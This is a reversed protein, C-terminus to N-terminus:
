RVWGSLAAKATFSSSVTNNDMRSLVRFVMGEDMSVPASDMYSFVRFFTVTVSKILSCRSATDTRQRETNRNIRSIMMLERRLDLVASALAFRAALSDM